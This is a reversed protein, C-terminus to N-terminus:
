HAADAQFRPAVNMDNLYNVFFFSSCFTSFYFSLISYRCVRNYIMGYQRLVESLTIGHASISAHCVSIFYCHGADDGGM